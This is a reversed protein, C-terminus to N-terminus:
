SKCDRERKGEEKGEWRRRYIHHLTILLLFISYVMCDGEADSPTNSMYNEM